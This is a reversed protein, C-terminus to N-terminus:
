LTFNPLNQLNKHGFWLKFVVWHEWLTLAIQYITALITKKKWVNFGEMSILYFTPFKQSFVSTVRHSSTTGSLTFVDMVPGYHGENNVCWSLDALDAKHPWVCSSPPGLGAWWHCVSPYKRMFLVQCCVLHTIFKISLVLNCPQDDATKQISIQRSTVEHNM